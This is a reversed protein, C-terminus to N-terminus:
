EFGGFFFMLTGNSAGGGGSSPFASDGGDQANAETATAIYDYDDSFAGTGYGSGIIGRAKGLGTGTGRPDVRGYVLDGFQESNGSSTSSKFAIDHYPSANWGAMIHRSGFWAGGSPVEFGMVAEIDAVAVGMIKEIDDASVSMFKEVDAM